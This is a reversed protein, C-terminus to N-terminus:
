QKLQKSVWYDAKLIPYVCSKGAECSPPDGSRDLNKQLGAQRCAPCFFIQASGTSADDTLGTNDTHLNKV